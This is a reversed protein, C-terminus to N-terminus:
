ISKIMLHIEDSFNAVDKRSKISNATKKKLIEESYYFKNKKSEIIAELQYYFGQYFFTIRLVTGSAIVDNLGLLNLDQNYIVINLAIKLLMDSKVSISSDIEVSKPFFKPM